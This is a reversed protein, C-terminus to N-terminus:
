IHEWNHPMEHPNCMDFHHSLSMLLYRRLFLFVFLLMIIVTHRPICVSTFDFLARSVIKVPTDWRTPHGLSSSTGTRPWSTTAVFYVSRVTRATGDRAAGACLRHGIKGRDHPLGSAGRRHRAVPRHGVECASRRTARTKASSDQQEVARSNGNAANKAASGCRRPRLCLRGHGHHLTTCGQSSQLGCSEFLDLAVEGCHHTRM